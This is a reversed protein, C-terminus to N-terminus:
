TSFKDRKKQGIWKLMIKEGVDFDRLQLRGMSTKEDAEHISYTGGIEGRKSKIARVFYTFVFSKHM